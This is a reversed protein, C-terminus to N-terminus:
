IKSTPPLQLALDIFTYKPLLNDIKNATVKDNYYKDIPINPNMLLDIGQVAKYKSSLLNSTQEDLKTQETTILNLIDDTKQILDYFGLKMITATLSIVSAVLNLAASILQGIDSGLSLVTMVAAIAVNIVGNVIDGVIGTFVASILQGVIFGVAIVPLLSALPPFFISAIAVVILIIFGLFSMWGSIYTLVVTFINLQLSNFLIQDQDYKSMSKLIEKDLPIINLDSYQQAPFLTNSYQGSKHLGIWENTYSISPNFVVLEVCDTKSFQYVYQIISTSINNVQVSNIPLTNPFVNEYIYKAEFHVSLSKFDLASYTKSMYSADLANIQTLFLNDSTVLAPSKVPLNSPDYDKAPINHRLGGLFKVIYRRVEQSTSTINVAFLIFIDAMDQSNPTDTIGKLLGKLDVGLYKLAKEYKPYKADTTKLQTKDDRIMITPFVNSDQQSTTELITNSASVPIVAYFEENSRSPISFVIDIFDRTGKAYGSSNVFEPITSGIFQTKNNTFTVNGGAFFEDAAYGTGWEAVGKISKIILPDSTVGSINSYLEGTSSNILGIRKQIGINILVVDYIYLFNIPDAKLVTLQKNTLFINFDDIVAQEKAINLLLATKETTLSTYSFGKTISDQIAKNVETLKKNLTNIGTSKLTIVNDILPKIFDYVAQKNVVNNYIKTYANGIVKSEPIESICYKVFKDVRQAYGHDLSYTIADDVTYGQGLASVILDKKINPPNPHLSSSGVGTAISWAM